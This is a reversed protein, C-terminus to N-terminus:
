EDNDDDELGAFDFLPEESAMGKPGERETETPQPFDSSKFLEGALVLDLTKALDPLLDITQDLVWLLDLLEDDFKWVEPRISDLPSSSKGARHRMRYGLWSKIIEFGSVNFEWVQPRVKEFIGKGVRLEQDSYSYSFDEPYDAPTSPTGVKCRAQGPPLKGAKQGMPVFREGYTHLWLLKCGSSVAQDFLVGDKTIPIRPGPITLEDWFKKM